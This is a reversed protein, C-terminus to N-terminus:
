LDFAENLYKALELNHLRSDGVSPAACPVRGVYKMDFTRGIRKFIAQMRPVVFSWPGANMPEEQCWKIAKLNKYRGLDQIVEKFPFPTLEEVRAIAFGKVGTTDRKELLDYYVQGSCLLLTHVNEAEKDPIYRKFKTGTQLDSLSCFCGRFKLMRKGTIAILPKRYDRHVQRRLVHFLNDATTCNVISVNVLRSIKDDSMDWLGEFDERESSLQLYREIRASSHDPGQGDYGHPLFMVVGNQQDWKTEGSVVFEDAIVQAINAFDGFQAEWITLISPSQLAYGYEFGLAAMENLLSNYVAIRDANEHNKFVNHYEFSKQCQVFAHRHSFTGRRSDQGSLRIQFGESALTSYAIIEAFGYDIEPSGNAAKVRTEFIRKISTHPQIHSPIESTMKAHRLLVDYPLGTEVHKEEGNLAGYPSDHSFGQYMKEWKKPVKLFDIEKVQTSKQLAEEFRKELQKETAVITEEDLLNNKLLHKRYTDLIDATKDVKSYMEANTFKPMDLENHGFRRFGVVNIYIDKHFKARYEFALRGAFAIAEISTSNVHIIPSEMMKAVDTPYRCSSGEEPSATFGIQNNAIIHITGGISYGPIYGMQLTEYVIGEGSFAADGHVVIPVVQSKGDPGLEFQNACVKGALVPHVYQLHSPNHLLELELDGKKTVHGFHYKVDGSRFLPSVFWNKGRFEAFIDHLPKNMVNALVNLRGRHAMAMMFKKVGFKSASEEFVDFLVLMGELGDLGFRKITPFAKICFKEWRVGNYVGKFFQLHEDRSFKLFDDDEIKSIFFNQVEPSPIHSFEFGISGCYAKKYKEICEGITSSSGIYGPIDLKPISAALSSASFGFSEPSLREHINPVQAKHFPPKRPLELPDLSTLLHGFTRYAAALESLRLVDTNVNGQGLQDLISVAQSTSANGGVGAGPQTSALGPRERAIAELTYNKDQDLLEFYKKWSPQLQEPSQRYVQYLHELYNASEGGFNAVNLLRRGGRILGVRM